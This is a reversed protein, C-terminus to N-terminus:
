HSGSSENWEYVVIGLDGLTKLTAEVNRRVAPRASQPTDHAEEVAVVRGYPWSSEPVAALASPLDSTRIIVDQRRAAAPRLMGGAGLTSPNADAITVHLTAMNEQVTLYPNEWSTLSHVAMYRSKSPPPIFSIQQRASDIEQPSALKPSTGASATRCGTLVLPSALCAAVALATMYRRLPHCSSPDAPSTPTSVVTLM